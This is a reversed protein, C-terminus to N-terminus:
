VHTTTLEILKNMFGFPRKLCGITYFAEHQPQWQEVGIAMAIM